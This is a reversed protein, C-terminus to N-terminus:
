NPNIFLNPLDSTNDVTAQKRKFESYIDSLRNVTIKNFDACNAARCATSIAYSVKEGPSNFKYNCADLWGCIAAIVRKRWMDAEPQVAKHANTKATQRKLDEIMLSYERPYKYWLESLSCTKGNSFQHVIGEKIVERYAGNYNPLEKVLQWFLGHTKNTTKTKNM